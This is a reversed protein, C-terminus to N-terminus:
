ESPVIRPPGMQARQDLPKRVYEAFAVDIGYPWRRALPDFVDNVLTGLGSIKQVLEDGHQLPGCGQRNCGTSIIDGPMLTNVRSAEVIIQPIRYAMDSTHYNHRLEGNVWMQVKLDHPDAIADATVIAPGIPAFSDWSKLTFFSTKGNQLIGRASCDQFIVYGFISEMADDLTARHTKKGIVVGLELEHHLITIDVDPMVITQDPGIIASPSKHFFELDGINDAIGERYNAAVCLIKSPARLPARLTVDDLCLPHGREIVQGIHDKLEPWSEILALLPERPNWNPLASLLDGIDYVRHGVLIAPRSDDFLVFKM